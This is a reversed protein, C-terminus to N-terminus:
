RKTLADVNNQGSNVIVHSVREYVGAYVAEDTVVIDAVMNGSRHSSGVINCFSGAGVLCIAFPKILSFIVYMMSIFLNLGNHCFKIFRLFTLDHLIDIFIDWIRKTTGFYFKGKCHNQLLVM